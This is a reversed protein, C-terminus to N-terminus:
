KLSPLFNHSGNRSSYGVGSSLNGGIHRRVSPWYDNSVILSRPGCVAQIPILKQDGNIIFSVSRNQDDVGLFLAGNKM